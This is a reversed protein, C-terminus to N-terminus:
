EEVKAWVVTRTSANNTCTTLSIETGEGIDRTAYSFDHENATYNNYVTYKLKQGTINTIYILDGNKLTHLKSFMRSNRYNHGAIVVNGPKNLAEEVNAPYIAATGVRLTATNDVNFIPYQIKLAPISIIGIIKYKDKYYTGIGYSTGTSTNPKTTENVINNVEGPQEVPKEVPEETNVQNNEIPEEEIYSNEFQAMLEEADKNATYNDYWYFVAYVTLGAIVVGFVICLMTLFDSYRRM